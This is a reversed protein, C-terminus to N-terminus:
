AAGTFSRIADEESAFTEFVTVLKTITMVRLNRQVLNLLKIDGGQKRVSVLKGVMVGVGASDIYTVDALNLVIKLRGQRVLAEISQRFPADGEGLVVRGKLDLTTVDGSQREAIQLGATM